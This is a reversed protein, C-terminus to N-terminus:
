KIEEYDIYEGDDPQNKSPHSTPQPPTQFHVDQRPPPPVPPRFYTALWPRVFTQYIWLLVLINFIWKFIM